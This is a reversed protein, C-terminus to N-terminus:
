EDESKNTKIQLKIFVKLSPDNILKDLQKHAEEGGDKYFGVLEEVYKVWVCNDCGSQCCNDPPQPLEKTTKNQSKNDNNQSSNSAMKVFFLNNLSKFLTKSSFIKTEISKVGILSM